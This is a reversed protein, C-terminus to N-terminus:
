AAQDHDELWRQAAELAMEVSLGFGPQSLYVNEDGILDLLNTDELQERVRENIGALILKCDNAQL